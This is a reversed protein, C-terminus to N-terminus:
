PCSRRQIDGYQEFHPANDGTDIRHPIIRTRGIDYELRSFVNSRRKIFATARARQEDTLDDPLGDLLCQIHDHSDDAVPKDPVATADTALVPAIEAGAAATGVGDTMAPRTEVPNQETTPPLDTKKSIGTTISLM